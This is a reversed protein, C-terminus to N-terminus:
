FLLLWGENDLFQGAHEEMAEYIKDLLNDFQKREEAKM